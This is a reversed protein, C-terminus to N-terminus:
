IKVIRHGGLLELQADVELVAIVLIFSSEAFKALNEVM